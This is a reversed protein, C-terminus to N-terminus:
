DESYGLMTPTFYQENESSFVRNQITKFAEVYNHYNEVGIDSPAPLIDGISIRSGLIYIGVRTDALSLQAAATLNPISLDAEISFNSTAVALRVAVGIEFERGSDTKEVRYFKAEQVVGAKVVKATGNFLKQFFGVKVEVEDKFFHTEIDWRNLEILRKDLSPSASKFPSKPRQNSASMADVSKKLDPPLSNDIYQDVLTMRNESRNSDTPYLRLAIVNRCTLIQDNRDTPREIRFIM